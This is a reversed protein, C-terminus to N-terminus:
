DQFNFTLWERKSRSNKRTQGRRNTTIEKAHWGMEVLEGIAEGESVVVRAGADAWRTALQVVKCRPLSHKYGTTNQYPPDIYCSCPFPTISAADTHHVTWTGGGVEPPPLPLNRVRQHLTTRCPIFGDANPRNKHVGKFGGREFGGFTGCIVLLHAAARTAADITSVPSESTTRAWQWCPKAPMGIKSQIINAVAIRDTLLMKWTAGWEGPEVLQIRPKESAAYGFTQMIADKYGQKGGAYAVVPRHGYLGLAIAASGACLEVFTDRTGLLSRSQSPFPSQETTRHLEVSSELIHSQQKGHAKVIVPATHVTDTALVLSAADHDSMNQDHKEQADSLGPVIQCTRSEVPAADLSRM